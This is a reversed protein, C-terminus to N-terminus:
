VKRLALGVGVAMLPAMEQLYEPSFERPDATLNNFPNLGEVPIKTREEIIDRLRPVKSSGGTLYLRKIKDEPYTASFFDLSKAIEMSVMHSVRDLICEV